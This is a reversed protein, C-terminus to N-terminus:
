QLLNSRAQDSAAVPEQYRDAASLGSSHRRVRGSLSCVQLVVRISGGQFIIFVNYFDRIRLFIWLCEEQFVESIILEMRNAVDFPM